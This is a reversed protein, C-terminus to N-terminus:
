LLLLITDVKWKMSQEKQLHSFNHIKLLNWVSINSLCTKVNLTLCCIAIKNPAASIVCKLQLHLETIWCYIATNARLVASVNLLSLLSRFCLFISTNFRQQALTYQVFRPWFFFSLPLSSFFFSARQLKKKSKEQALESECPPRHQEVSADHRLHTSFKKETVVEHVLILHTPMTSKWTGTNAKPLASYIGTYKISAERATKNCCTLTSCILM